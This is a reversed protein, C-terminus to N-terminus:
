LYQGTNRHGDDAQTAIHQQERLKDYLEAVTMGGTVLNPDGGHERMWDRAEDMSLPAFEINAIARGPRRVAEHISDVNENTTILFLAKLGQGIMGDSLNLLRSMAQGSRQKADARLFEDTDEMIFLRYRDDGSLATARVEDEYDDLDMFRASPRLVLTLLDGTRSFFRETDGVYNADCWPAWEKILSRILHTKGTGPPGQMLILKGGDFPPKLNVLGDVHEAVQHTYNSRIEPWKHADINRTINQPGNQGQYWFAVPVSSSSLDVKIPELKGMVEDLAKLAVDRSEAWVNVHVNNHRTDVRVLMVFKAHEYLTDTDGSNADHNEFLLWWDQPVHQYVDTNTNKWQSAHHRFEPNRNLADVIVFEGRAGGMVAESAYVLDTKATDPRKDTM